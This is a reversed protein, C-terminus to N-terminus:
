KISKDIMFLCLIVENLKYLRPKYEKYSRYNYRNKKLKRWSEVLYFM